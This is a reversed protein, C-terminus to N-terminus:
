FTNDNNETSNDHIHHIISFLTNVQIREVPRRLASPVLTILYVCFYTSWNFYKDGKGSSLLWKNMMELEDILTM